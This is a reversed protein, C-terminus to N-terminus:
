KEDLGAVFDSFLDSVDIENTVHPITNYTVIRGVGAALLDQYANGAFVAHVGICVPPKMGLTKLQMVTEIMTRATSIIDDVLVPTYTQYEKIKRVSVEM